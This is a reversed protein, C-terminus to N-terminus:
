QISLTQILNDTCCCHCFLLRVPQCYSFLELFVLYIDTVDLFFLITIITHKVPVNVVFETELTLLRSFLCVFMENEMVHM